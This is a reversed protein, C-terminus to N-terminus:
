QIYFHSILVEEKIDEQPDSGHWDIWHTNAWSQASIAIRPTTLDRNNRCEGKICIVNIQTFLSTHKKTYKKTRNKTYKLNTGMGWEKPQLKIYKILGNPLIGVIKNALGRRSRAKAKTGPEIKIKKKKSSM